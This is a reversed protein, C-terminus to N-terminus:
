NIVTDKIELLGIQNKKPDALGSKITKQEKCTNESKDKIGKLITIM